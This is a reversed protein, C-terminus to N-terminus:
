DLVEEAMRRDGVRNAVRLERWAPQSRHPHPLCASWATAIQWKKPSRRGGKHPRAGAAHVKTISNTVRM